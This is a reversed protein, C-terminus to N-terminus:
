RSLKNIRNDLVKKVKYLEPLELEYLKDTIAEAVDGSFDHSNKNLYRERMENIHQQLQLPRKVATLVIKVKGNGTQISVMGFRFIMGLFGSIKGHVDEVQDYPVESVVREFFGKQELDIM